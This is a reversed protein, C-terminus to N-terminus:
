RPAVSVTLLDTYVGARKGAVSGIVFQMPLSDTMPGNGGSQYTSIGTLPMTQNGIVLQYPISWDTGVLQLQGQNRSEVDVRYARTSSVRLQLPVQSVGETLDGLDVLAQGGSRRYAGSLGLVASPLVNIGLVLSRSALQQGTGRAEASVTVRQTFSGDARIADENVALQYRVIQQGGPTVVVPRTTVGQITRGSTPTVNTNNFQDLLTYGIRGTRGESTLGFSEQDLLFVPNFACAARGDNSFTLDFTAIPSTSGFPDYGQIIWNSASSDIRLQCAAPRAALGSQAQAPLAAFALGAALAAVSTLSKMM